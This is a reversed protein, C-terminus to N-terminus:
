RLMYTEYILRKMIRNLMVLSLILCILLAVAYGYGYFSPGLYITALTLGGNLLFFLFSLWMAEVRRDLYFLVALVSMFGLQLMAGVTLIYFLGLYLQPINLIEFIRPAALFLAIDVIAQFVLIERIAHRLVELM